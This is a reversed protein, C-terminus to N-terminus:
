RGVLDDCFHYTQNLLLISLDIIKGALFLRLDCEYCGETFGCGYESMGDSVFFYTYMDSNIKTHSSDLCKRIIDCQEEITKALEEVREDKRSFSDLWKQYKPLLTSKFIAMGDAECSGTDVIYTDFSEAELQPLLEKEVVKGLLHELLEYSDMDSYESQQCDVGMSVFDIDWYPSKYYYEVVYSFMTSRPVGHEMFFEIEGMMAEPDLPNKSFSNSYVCGYSPDYQVAQVTKQYIGLSVAMALVLKDYVTCYSARDSKLYLNELGAQLKLLKEIEDKM